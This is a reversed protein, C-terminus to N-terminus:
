TESDCFRCLVVRDLAVLVPYMRESEGGLCGVLRGALPVLTPKLLLLSDFLQCRGSQRRVVM